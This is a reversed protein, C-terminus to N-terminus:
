FIHLFQVTGDKASTELYAARVNDGIINKLDELAIGGLETRETLRHWSMPCKDCSRHGIRYNGLEKKASGDHRLVFNHLEYNKADGAISVQAALLMFLGIAFGSFKKKM